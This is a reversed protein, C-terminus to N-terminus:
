VKVGNERLFYILKNVPLGFQFSTGNIEEAFRIVGDSDFSGAFKTVPYRSVYDQIESDVLERFKIACTDTASLMKGTESNFVALGCIIEVKNGSFTRLMEIAEENNAPKEFVENNFTVFLDAAIVLSNEHIKGIALAKAESLMKALELPDSHRISKEDFNSPVVSYQLSLLDLAKRRFLSQSALIIQM